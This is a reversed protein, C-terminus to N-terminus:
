FTIPTKKMKGYVVFNFQRNIRMNSNKSYVPVTTYHEEAWTTGNPYKVICSFTVDAQGRIFTANHSGILRYTPEDNNKISETTTDVDSNDMQWVILGEPKVRAIDCYLQYVIDAEVWSEAIGTM